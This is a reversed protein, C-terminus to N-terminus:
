KRVHVTITEEPKPAFWRWGRPVDAGGWSFIHHADIPTVTVNHFGRAEGAPEGLYTGTIAYGPAFELAYPVDLVDFANDFESADVTTSTAKRVLPFTGQMTSATTLPDGVVDRGSSILTTYVAKTGEYLTLTQLALSVDVWKTGQGVFDPFKKRKVVKIVDRERFWLGDEAEEYRFNEVTRFRGTLFLPTRRETEEDDLREAKGKTLAYPTVEHRLVFAVPLGKDRSLDVGHWTSGLAAELRDLPVYMMDPTIGFKRPGNPGEFSTSGVIAVGSGRRLVMPVLPGILRDGLPITPLPAGDFFSTATRKGDEGVGQGTRTVVARGTPLAREDLPVDNSGARLTVPAQKAAKQLHSSLKPEQENQEDVSPARAYLPTSSKVSAFRYPLAASTNPPAMLDGTSELSVGKDACVFGRPRVPYYGEACDDNKTHPQAARAVSGGFRLGGIVTADKKPQDLVVVDTRLAVLRPGDEAPVPVNEIAVDQASGAAKKSLSVDANAGRCAAAGGLLLLALAPTLHRRM